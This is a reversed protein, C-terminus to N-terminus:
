GRSDRRPRAELGRAPLSLARGPARADDHVGYVPVGLRGLSRAVGLGGHFTKLVVAPVSTNVRGAGGPRRVRVRPRPRRLAHPRLRPRGGPRDPAPVRRKTGVRCDGASRRAWRAAVIDTQGDGPEFGRRLLGDAIWACCLEDEIRPAGQSGAGVLAVDDDEAALAAIQASLNRLCALYVRKAGRAAVVVKTGSTSLLVLPREIDTRAAVEAPSNGLDFGDPLEGGMEGALLAGAFRTRLAHAEHESAVPFCRRGQAIATVATTTARIVDIAVIVRDRYRHVREPLRDIVVTRAM